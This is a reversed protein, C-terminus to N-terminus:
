AGRMVKMYIMSQHTPRMGAREYLRDAGTLSTSDVALGVKRKGRRYFERFTHLLLATGVGQRRYRRRVAVYRIHGTEPEGPRELRCLTYGAIEGSADDIALFWLTPDFNEEEEIFFTRFEDPTVSSFGYEDRQADEFARHVDDVEERRFTRVSIGEPWIPEPPLEDMDIRMRNWVRDLRYSREELLRQDATNSAWVPTQLTVRSGDVAKHLSRAAREEALTVIAAELGIGVFEPHVAFEFGLEDFPAYESYDAYAAPRGDPASILWNDTALDREPENWFMRMRAVTMEGEGILNIARLNTLEVATELDDMTVSRLTFGDPLAIL